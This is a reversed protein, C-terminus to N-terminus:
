FLSHGSWLFFYFLLTIVKINWNVRPRVLPPPHIDGGGGRLTKRLKKRPSLVDAGSTKLLQENMGGAFNSVLETAITVLYSTMLLLHGLWKQAYYMVFTFRTALYWAFHTHTKKRTFSLFNDNRTTKAQNRIRPLIWSPLCSPSLQSTYIFYNM